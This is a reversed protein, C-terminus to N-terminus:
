PAKKKKKTPRPKKEKPPFAGAIQGALSVFRWSQANAKAVLPKLDPPLPTQLALTGAARNKLLTQLVDFELCYGGGDASRRAGQALGDLDCDQFHSM